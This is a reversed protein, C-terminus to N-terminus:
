LHLDEDRDDGKRRLILLFIYFIHVIQEMFLFLAYNIVTTGAGAVGYSVWEKKVRRRRGKVEDTCVDYLIGTSLFIMM